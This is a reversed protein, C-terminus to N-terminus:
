LINFWGLNAPNHHSHHPVGYGWNYNLLRNQKFVQLDQKHVKSYDM